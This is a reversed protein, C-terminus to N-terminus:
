GNQDLFNKLGQEPGFLVFIDDKQFPEDIPVVGLTKRSGRGSTANMLRDLLGSELRKITVLRVGADNFAKASARISKGVLGGPVAAEIIAHGGGLDFGEVAGRMILSHALGRAAVEEPVVLREIGMLRLIREHAPSLVRCVLRKAGLEQLKVTITLSIEFSDGIGVVVADMEDIPLRGLPTPDEFDMVLAAAVEDKILAVNDERRDVALVEAGLSSLQLALNKGFVGLGIICFKV